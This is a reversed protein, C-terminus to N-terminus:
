AIGLETARQIAQRRGGVELKRYITRLHTKLTNLSIYLQDAIEASSLDTPLYQLIELERDSLGAAAGGVAARRSDLSRLLEEVERSPAVRAVARLAGDALDGADLVVRRHGEHAVAPLVQRVIRDVAADREGREAALISIWLDREIEGKLDSPHNTWSAMREAALELDGRAVAVHVASASLCAGLETEDESGVAAGARNLDGRELWLRAEVARLRDVVVPPPPPEGAARLEHLVALGREPQSAALCWAAREAACMAVTAPRRFRPLRAEVSGLLRDSRVLDNRERLAHAVGLYADLTAPHQLLDHADALVVARRGLSLARRLHGSWAELVTLASLVHVHWPVYLDSRALVALLEDRAAELRGSCWLARARSGLAMAELQGPATLGLLDPVSAPDTTHLLDLATNAARLSAEPTADFLIWTSRLAQGAARMGPAQLQEEVDRLVQAALRTDGLMTLLYARRLAVEPRDPDPLEDLLGLMPEPNGQEFTPRTFQDVLDVVRDSDGAELAYRAAAEPLGHRAHWDVARGLLAHEAGPAVTRLETRLFDRFLAQYRYRGPHEPVADTFAGRRELSSLLFGAEPEGTLASCLSDELQHLVSTRLLFRRVPAPAPELVESSLLAAVQPNGGHLRSLATDVDATSRISTAVVNVAFPWGETRRVISELQDDDLGIGAVLDVVARLEDPTFALEAGSLEIAEASRRALAPGCRSRRTVVTRVNTPLSALWQELEAVLAQHAPADLGDIVLVVDGSRTLEHRVRSMVQRTPIRGDAPAADPPRVGDHLRRAVQAADDSRRLSVWRVPLTSRLAAWRSALVTKGYGVPARLVVAGAVPDAPLLDLLRPRVMLDPDSGVTTPTTPEGSLPRGEPPELHSM